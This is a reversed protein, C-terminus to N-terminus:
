TASTENPQINNPHLLTEPTVLLHVLTFSNVTPLLCRYRGSDIQTVNSIRLSIDGRRLGEVSLTTRGHYSPAKMDLLEQADRYVHVYDVKEPLDQPNSDIKAWELPLEVVNEKPEVFCPLVVDEGEVALVPDSSGIVRSKSTSFPLVGSVYYAIGLSLLAIVVLLLLVRWFGLDEVFEQWTTRFSSLVGESSQLNPNLLSHSEMAARWKSESDAMQMTEMKSHPGRNFGKVEQEELGEHLRIADKNVGRRKALVLPTSGNHNCIDIKLGNSVLFQITDVHGCLHLATNGLLHVLTFSKLTPLLCRYRGSDIQTVNSIRLSIDGRRLGEVSLTTRGHYSPAKMDLLEQADRYVHVYDVKEPLDQPHSDVKSWVLPLEVVNDKPEVFCPLVVDEGEVALVPDSSGIVRFKGEVAANSLLRLTLLLIYCLNLFNTKRSTLLM